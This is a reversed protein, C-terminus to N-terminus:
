QNSGTAIFRTDYMISLFHVSETDTLVSAGECNQGTFEAQCTCTYNELQNHCTGNNQCPSDFCHDMVSFSLSFNFRIFVTRIVYKTLM